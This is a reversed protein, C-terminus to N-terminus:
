DGMQAMYDDHLTELAQKHKAEEQCLIKFLNKGAETDAQVQFDNYLKLTKEERHPFIWSSHLFLRCKELYRFNFLIIV